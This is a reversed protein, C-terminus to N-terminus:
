PRARVRVRLHRLAFVLGWDQDNAFPDDYDAREGNVSYPFVYACSARGDDHILPLVGRIVADARRDVAEDGTVQAYLSLVTGTLGSWYHPFTDGYTQRKGFWYGDWHRIAVENLHYDPQVGHFQDLIRMQEEAATLLVPDGTLLHTQLMIDAAPAVISQEYNVESPPYNRGTRALTHAHELFLTVAEAREQHHGADALADCLDRVPLELPYFTLGGSAYFERLVRHAVLPHAPDGDLRYLELYFAAVWPANYLREFRGDRGADNYVVGSTEDVLERRVFAAYRDLSGRLIGSVAPDSARVLGDRLATLYKALLVGMGIRERGANYDNVASYYTREEENDYTLLAGDLVGIRGSYQQHRAIFVCRRELLVDLPEKVLIRTRVTADDARVVLEHEGPEDATFAVTFTGDPQPQAPKGAVTVEGAPFSPTVTLTSTEGAFLVYRDWEARVFRSRRAAQEFFDDKGECPFITWAITTQEGPQLEVPEPHLVFCGRDNSQLAVDREISYAALGGETLVLGLHPAGGGMRLALVFSATGGCFLHAHCREVDHRAGLDYRDELPLTIGIDEIKTFYPTAGVNTIVVRTRVEDGERTTTVRARLDHSTATGHPTAIRVDAYPYDPRLWNMAHPDGSFVIDVNERVENESM